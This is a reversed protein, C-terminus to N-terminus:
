FFGGPNCVITRMLFILRIGYTPNRKESESSPIEQWFCLDLLRLKLYM